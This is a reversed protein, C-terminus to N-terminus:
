CPGPESVCRHILGIGNLLTAWAEASFYKRTGSEGEAEKGRGGIPIRRPTFGASPRSPLEPRVRPGASTGTGPLRFDPFSSRGGSKRM